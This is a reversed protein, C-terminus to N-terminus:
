FTNSFTDYSNAVRTGWSTALDSTGALYEYVDAGAALTEKLIYWAGDKREFGYFNPTGDADINSIKYDGLDIRPGGDISEVVVADIFRDGGDSRGGVDAYLKRPSKWKGTEEIETAAVLDAM